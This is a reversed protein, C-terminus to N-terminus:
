KGMKTVAALLAPSRRGEGEGGRGGDDGVEGRGAFMAPRRVM